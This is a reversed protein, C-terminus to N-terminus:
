DIQPVALCQSGPDLLLVADPQAHTLALSQETLEAKPEALRPRHDSFGIRGLLIRM